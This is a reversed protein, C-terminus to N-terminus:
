SRSPMQQMTPALGLQKLNNRCQTPAAAERVKPVAPVLLRILPNCPHRLRATVRDADLWRAKPPLVRNM